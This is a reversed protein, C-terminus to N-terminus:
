KGIKKKVAPGVDFTQSTVEKIELEQAFIKHHVSPFFCILILFLISPTFRKM